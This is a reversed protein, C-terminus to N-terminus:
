YFCLVDVVLTCLLLYWLELSTETLSLCASLNKSYGGWCGSFFHLLQVTDLCSFWFLLALSTGVKNESQCRGAPPGYSGRGSVWVYTCASACVWVSLSLCLVLRVPPLVIGPPCVWVFGCPCLSSSIYLFAGLCVSLRVSSRRLGWSVLHCVWYLSTLRTGFIIPGSFNQNVIRYDTPWAVFKQVSIPRRGAVLKANDISKLLFKQNHEFQSQSIRKTCGSQSLNCESVM